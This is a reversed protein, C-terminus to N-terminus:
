EFIVQGDGSMKFDRMIMEQKKDLDIHGYHDSINQVSTGMLRSLTFVDVGAYLRWTAYSHRLCYFVPPVDLKSLGTADLIIQWYKYYIDRGLQDGSQNDIFIYDDPNTFKSLKKLKEVLDGRKSIVNRLGTKGERVTIALKKRLPDNKSDKTESVNVDKWRLSRLEGFRLGTNPLLLIFYRIFLRREKEQSDKINKNWGKMFSYIAQWQEITIADRNIKEGLKRPSQYRGFQPALKPSISGSKIAWKYFHKISASENIITSQRVTSSITKRFASYGRFFDPKIQSLKENGIFAQFHKMQSEITKVRSLKKEGYEVSKIESALYQEILEPLKQEFVPEGHRIKSNIDFYLEKAKDKAELINKTRLSRRYYKKEKTVRIRCQWYDGGALTRFIKVDGDLIEMSDIHFNGKNKHVRKKQNLSM